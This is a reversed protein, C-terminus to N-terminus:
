KAGIWLLDPQHGKFYCSMAEVLVKLSSTGNLRCTQRLSPIREVWRNGKHSQTGQSRKRWLVAYRLM